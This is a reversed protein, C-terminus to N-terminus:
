PAPLGEFPDAERAGPGAEPSAWETPIDLRWAFRELDGREEFAAVRVGGAWSAPSNVDTAWGELEILARDGPFARALAGARAAAAPALRAV